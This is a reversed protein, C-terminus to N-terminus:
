DRDEEGLPGGGGDHHRTWLGDPDPDMPYEPPNRSDYM